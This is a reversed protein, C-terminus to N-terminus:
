AHANFLLLDKVYPCAVPEDIWAVSQVQIRKSSTDTSGPLRRRPWVAKSWTLSGYVESTLRFLPLEPIFDDVEPIFGKQM